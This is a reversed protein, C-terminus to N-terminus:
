QQAFSLLRNMLLATECCVSELKPASMNMLVIRNTKVSLSSTRGLIGFRLLEPCLMCM